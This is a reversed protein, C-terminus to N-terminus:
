FMVDSPNWTCKKDSLAITFYKITHQSNLEKLSLTLTNLLMMAFFFYDLLITQFHM